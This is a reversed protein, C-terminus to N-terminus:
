KVKSFKLAVEWYWVEHFYLKWTTVQLSLSLDAFLTFTIRAIRSSRQLRTRFKVTQFFFKLLHPTLASSVCIQHITTLFISQSAILNSLQSWALVPGELQWSILFTYLIKDSATSFLHYFISHSTSIFRIYRVFTFNTTNTNSSFKESCQVTSPKLLILLVASKSSKSCTIASLLLPRDM